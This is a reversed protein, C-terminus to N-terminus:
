KSANSISLSSPFLFPIAVTGAFVCSLLTKAVVKGHTFAEMDADFFILLTEFFLFVTAFLLGLAIAQKRLQVFGIRRPLLALLRRSYLLFVVLVALALVIASYQIMNRRSLAAVLQQEEEEALKKQELEQMEWEHRAELGGIEKSKEENFLSDKATSYQKYHELALPYRHTQNYITSLNQNVEMVGYLDGISDSLAVSNKLYEEAEKYKEAQLKKDAISNAQEIYLSGINGLNIAISRKDGLEKFIELAELYHKLAKPYDSQNKYVIGINGLNIAIGMRDGPKKQIELAEFYHKLAKPYNGQKAYVTGINGLHRAIGNKNGLEKDMELAEFYHKLAKPYDSQNRYVIGINSLSIAIGRKDNM